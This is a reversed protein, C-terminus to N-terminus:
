SGAGASETPASSPTSPATPALRLMVTVGVRLVTGAAPSTATVAGTGNAPRGAVTFGASELMAAATAADSGAVPPVTNYGSAVTVDVVAGPAVPAGAVPSQGLVRDAAEASEVRSVTGLALGAAALAREAEALTGFLPPVGVPAVSPPPGPAAATSLSPTASAVPPPPAAQTAASATPTPPPASGAASMGAWIGLGIVVAIATAAAAIGGSRARERPGAETAAPPPSLYDLSGTRPEPLVRTAADGRADGANASEHLPPAGVPVPRADVERLAADFEAADRYRRAPTKTMARTVIRDLPRASPVLASPVPPPASVQAELVQRTTPRAFPPAGTVAYSLVAGVQYLDSAARVPLGQAQEPSMYHANGIVNAGDRGLLIDGGVAARGTLDALGFDLIRVADPTIGGDESPTRDDLVINQPSIDRHVIGEAHAVALGALIGRAVAAADAVPLPGHREVRERLTPGSALDLAIWPMVVGGTEHLGAGRVRVIHPDRLRAARDAEALFAARTADDACLHPHLLKIAVRVGTELDDAAFVSASGGVGLLEGLAYQGGILATDAGGAREGGDGQM